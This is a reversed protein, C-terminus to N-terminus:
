FSLECLDAVTGLLGHLALKAKFGSALAESFDVPHNLPCDIPVSLHYFLQLCLLHGSTM